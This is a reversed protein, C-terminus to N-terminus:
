ADRPAAHRATVMFWMVIWAAISGGAAIVYLWHAGFADFASGGIPAAAIRILGPLTVTFVAMTTTVQQDPAHEGIFEVLAVAYLSYAVGDIVHSILIMPVSPAIFVGSLRVADLAFSARLLREAGFRRALRDAWLMGPLEVLAGITSALGIITEGAGLQVLYIPEFQRFGTGTLWIVSLAIALGVLARDGLMAHVVQRASARPRSTLRSRADGRDAPRGNAHILSILVISILGCVAYGAFMTFLGTQEILWGGVLTTVAWGLSGWLRVSGFGSGEGRTIALVLADTLPAVGASLLADLTVFIAMWIFLTQQSLCLMCVSTALMGFQLVRRPNLAADSYRGWLPAVVLAAISSVTGLLGIETGSLGRDVFFLNIFPALFGGGATLMFYYFRLNWLSNRIQTPM